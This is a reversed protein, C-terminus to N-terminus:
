YTYAGPHTLVGPYYISMARDRGRVIGNFAGQITLVESQSYRNEKGKLTSVTWTKSYNQHALMCHVTVCWMCWLVTRCTYFM